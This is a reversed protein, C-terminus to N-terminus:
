LGPPTHAIWSRIVPIAASDTITTAYKSNVRRRGLQVYHGVMMAYQPSWQVKTVRYIAPDDPIQFDQNVLSLEDPTPNRPPHLISEYSTIPLTPVPPLPTLLTNVPLPEDLGEDPISDLPITPYLPRREVYSKLRSM